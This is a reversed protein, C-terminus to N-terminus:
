GPERALEIIPAETPCGLRFPFWHGFGSTTYLRSEGRRYAGWLHLDPFFAQFASRGFLGVQGGHTHGALTLHFGHRAAPAFGEPRHCLLLRFAGEPAQERCRAVSRELFTEVQDRDWVVPDDAGAIHIRASGALLTVGRDVLLEVRSAEYIPRTREIRNLYEHNGLSAFIGLRPRYLHLVDLAAELQGLDDAVDGTLVILDPALPAVRALLAELDEVHRAVGLHLDSLHLIRLGALDPHLDRFRMRVLPVRPAEPASALGRVGAGAASAPLISLSARVLARRSIATAPAPRPAPRERGPPRLAALAGLAAALLSAAFLGIAAPALVVLATWALRVGLAAEAGRGSSWLLMGAAPVAALAAVAAVAARAFGARRAAPRARSLLWVSAAALALTALFLVLTQPLPLAPLM